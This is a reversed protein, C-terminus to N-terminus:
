SVVSPDADLATRKIARWKQENLRLTIARKTEPPQDPDARM